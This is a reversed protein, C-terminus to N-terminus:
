IKLCSRLQRISEITSYQNLDLSHTSKRLILRLSMVNM